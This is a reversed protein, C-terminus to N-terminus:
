PGLRCRGELIREKPRGRTRPPRQATTVGTLGRQKGDTGRLKSHRHGSPTQPRSTEEELALSAHQDAILSRGHGSSPVLQSGGQFEAGQTGTLSQIHYRTGTLSQIHYRSRTQVGSEKKNNHGVLTARPLSVSRLILPAPQVCWARCYGADSSLDQRFSATHPLPCM